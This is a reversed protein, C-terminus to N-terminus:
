CSDRPIGLLRSGSLVWRVLGLGIIQVIVAVGVASLFGFKLGSEDLLELIGVFLALGFSALVMLHLTSLRGSALLIIVLGISTTLIEFLVTVIVIVIFQVFFLPTILIDLHAIVGLLLVVRSALGSVLGLRLNHDVLDCVSWLWVRSRCM